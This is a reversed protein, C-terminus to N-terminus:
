YYTIEREITAAAEGDLFYTKEIWNGKSDFKYKLTFTQSPEEGSTVIYKTPFLGKKYLYKTFFHLEYTRNVRNDIKTFRNKDDYEYSISHVLKNKDDYSLSQSLFGNKSYKLARKGELKGEFNYALIESPLLNDGLSIVMKSKKNPFGTSTITASAKKQKDDYTYSTTQTLKEPVLELVEKSVHNKDDYTWKQITKPQRGRFYTDLETIRGKKDFLLFQDDDLSDFSLAEAAKPLKSQSITLSKVNGQLQYVQQHKENQGWCIAYFLFLIYPKM